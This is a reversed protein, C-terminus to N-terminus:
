IQTTLRKMKEIFSLDTKSINPISFFLLVELNHYLSLVIQVTAPRLKKSENGNWKLSQMNLLPSNWNRWVLLRKVLFSTSCVLREQTEPKPHYLPWVLLLIHQYLSLSEWAMNYTYVQWFIIKILNLIEWSLSFLWTLIIPAYQFRFLDLRLVTLVRM